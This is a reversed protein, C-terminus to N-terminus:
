TPAEDDQPIWNAKFDFSLVSVRGDLDERIPLFLAHEAILDHTDEIGAEWESLELDVFDINGVYRGVRPQVGANLVTAVSREFERNQALRQRLM